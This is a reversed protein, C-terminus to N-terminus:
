RPTGPMDAIEPDGPWGPVMPQCTADRDPEARPGPLGPPSCATSSSSPFGHAPM